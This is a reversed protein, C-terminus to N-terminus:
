QRLKPDLADRLGDGLLNFALMTLCIAAAPFLLEHPYFDMVAQGFSCMAGWSTNPPQIGLGIFSLFAEAFIFGPIDFTMYVIIIGITNPILHRLIIRSSSAGLAQAALVYESQKLQMVQGRVMRAMGTWGTLCLALLLSVIGRELVVSIVIVVIMYPISMLVEVIRMMINDIRGGFYGSIGGYLCGIVVEIITGVIGIAISVRGGIWLRSFLDRGLNDTGFWYESNPAANVMDMNQQTYPHKTIYPGIACMVAVIALLIMSFIAVKNQKLRRWADQWYTINPRVIADSDQNDCGIIEFMDKNLEAM